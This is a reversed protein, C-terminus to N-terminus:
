SRSAVLLSRRLLGESVGQLTLTKKLLEDEFAVGGELACLEGELARRAQLIAKCTARFDETVDEDVIVQFGAERLL